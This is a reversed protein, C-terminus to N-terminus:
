ALWDTTVLDDNDDIEVIAAWSGKKSIRLESFSVVLDTENGFTQLAGLVDALDLLDNRSVAWRMADKSPFEADPEPKEVKVMPAYADEATALRDAGLWATEGFKCQAETVNESAPRTTVLAFGLYDVEVSRVRQGEKFGTTGPNLIVLPFEAPNFKEVKTMPAYADEATAVDEPSLWATVGRRRHEADNDGAVQTTALFAWGGLREGTDRVRAGEPFGSGTANDELVVLPSEVKKSKKRM